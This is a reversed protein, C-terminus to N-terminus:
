YLCLQIMRYNRVFIERINSDNFEPVIRGREALNSLSRAAYRANRVFSSAYYPSDKAIYDAAEELDRWAIEAWKVKRAM